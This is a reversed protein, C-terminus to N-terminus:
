GTTNVLEVGRVEFNKDIYCLTAHGEHHYVIPVPFSDAEDIMSKKIFIPLNKKCVRCFTTVTKGVDLENFGDLLTEIKAKFPNFTNESITGYSLIVEIDYMENFQNDVQELIAELLQFQIEPTAGISLLLAGKRIYVIKMNGKDIHFFIDQVENEKVMRLDLIFSRFSRAPKWDLLTSEESTINIFSINEKLNQVM